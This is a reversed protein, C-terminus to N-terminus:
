GRGLSIIINSDQWYTGESIRNNDNLNLRKTDELVEAPTTNHEAVFRGGEYPSFKVQQM